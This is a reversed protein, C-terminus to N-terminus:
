SVFFFIILVNNKVTMSPFYQVEKSLIHTRCYIFANLLLIYFSSEHVNTYLDLVFDKFYERFVDTTEHVTEV